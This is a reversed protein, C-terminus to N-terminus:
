RWVWWFTYGLTSLWTVCALAALFSAMGPALLDTWVFQVLIALNLTVAFFAALFVGLLEQGTWIQALGPWASLLAVLYRRQM